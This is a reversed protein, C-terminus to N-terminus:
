MAMPSMPPPSAALRQASSRRTPSFRCRATSCRPARRMPSPSTPMKTATLLVGGYIAGGANTVNVDDGFNQVTLGGTILGNNTVTATNGALSGAGNITVGVTDTVVGAGSVAGITSNNVFTIAGDGQGAAGFYGLVLTTPGPPVASTLAANVIVTDAPAVTNAFIIANAGTVPTDVTNAAAITTDAQSAVPFAVAAVATTLYLAARTRRLNTPNATLGTDRSTM